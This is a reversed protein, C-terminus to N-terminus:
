QNQSKFKIKIAQSEIQRYEKKTLKIASIKIKQNLMSQNRRHLRYVQDRTSHWDSSSKLKRLSQTPTTPLALCSNKMHGATLGAFNERKFTTRLQIGERQPHRQRKKTLLNASKIRRSAISLWASSMSIPSRRSFRKCVMVKAQNLTPKWLLTLAIKVMLTKLRSRQSLNRISRNQKNPKFMRTRINRWTRILVRKAWILGSCGRRSRQCIEVIIVRIGPWRDRM